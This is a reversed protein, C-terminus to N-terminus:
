YVIIMNKKERGGVGDWQGPHISLGGPWKARVKVDMFNPKHRESM